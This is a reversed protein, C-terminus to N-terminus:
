CPHFSLLVSPLEPIRMCETLALATAGETKVPEALTSLSNECVGVKRGYTRDQCRRPGSFTLKQCERSSAWEETDRM